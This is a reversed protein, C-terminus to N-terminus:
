GEDIMVHVAKIFTEGGAESLDIGVAGMKDNRYVMIGHNELRELVEKRPHGYNNKGVQIVAASPSVAELLEESTSRASGHHGVNLIDAKLINEMERERYYAIMNKEGQMDLDGTVLVRIGDYDIMFVSSEENEQKKEASEPPWLVTINTKDSVNYKRGAEAKIVPPEADFCESLETLGKIHDMDEHTALSLDVKGTGNKLLYPKLIKEGVNYERSGGGDILVNMGDSRIHTCAGQGVDVFVIEDHEIPEYIILGAALSLLLIFAIILLTKKTQKRISLIGAYETCLYLFVGLISVTIAAPPSVTDFSSRGGNALFTNIWVM